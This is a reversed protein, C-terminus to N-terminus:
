IITSQCAGRVAETQLVAKFNDLDVGQKVTVEVVARYVDAGKGARRHVVIDNAPDVLPAIGNSFSDKAKGKGHSQASSNLSDSIPPLPKWSKSAHSALLTRFQDLAAALTTEYTPSTSLSASPAATASSSSPYLDTLLGTM